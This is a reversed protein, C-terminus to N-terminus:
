ELSTDGFDKAKYRVWNDVIKKCKKEDGLIKFVYGKEIVSPFNEKGVCDWLSSWRYKEFLFKLVKKIDKVGNEKYGPEILSISNCWVYAIVNRLQDDSEIHVAKFRNFLHGKRKYKINLYSAYGGSVKKVFNSIGNEQLQRVVLHIHNSMFCFALIEIFKDRRDISQSPDSGLRKARKKYVLRDRRRKLILVPSSSNFEYLSFIGRYYDDENKFVVSDGVARLIIHYIEDNVLQARKTPMFKPQPRVGAQKQKVNKAPQPNSLQLPAKSKPM